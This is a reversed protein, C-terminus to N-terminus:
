IFQSDRVMLSVKARRYGVLDARVSFQQSLALRFMASRLAQPDRESTFCEGAAHLMAISLMYGTLPWCQSLSIKTCDFLFFFTKQKEVKKNHNHKKDKRQNKTKISFFLYRFWNKEKTKERSHKKRSEAGSSM